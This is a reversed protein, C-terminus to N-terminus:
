IDPPSQFQYSMKLLRFVDGDLDEVDRLRIFHELKKGYAQKKYIPFEDSEQPLVFKLDLEQKMVKVVLFTKTAIFVVCSKTASASVGPWGTIEVLLKDFVNVLEPPKGALLDNFSVKKCYHWSNAKTLPRECKPCVFHM